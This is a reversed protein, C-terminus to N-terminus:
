EIQIPLRVPPSNDDLLYASLWFRGTPLTKGTAWERLIAQLPLTRRQNPQLAFQSTAPQVLAPWRELTEGNDRQIAFGLQQQNSFWFWKESDSRNWVEFAGRLTDGQRFRARELRLTFEVGNSFVSAESESVTTPDLAADCGSACLLFGLAFLPFFPPLRRERRAFFSTMLENAINQRRKPTTLIDTSLVSDKRGFKLFLECIAFTVFVDCFFSIDFIRRSSIRLMAM